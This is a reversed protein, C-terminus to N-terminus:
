LRSDRRSRHANGQTGPWSALPSAVQLVAQLNLIGTFSQYV